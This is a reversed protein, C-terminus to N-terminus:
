KGHERWMTEAVLFDFETDIDLSEVREMLYPISGNNIFQKKELFVERRVIYIAGNISFYKPLDQTRTKLDSPVLPVMQAKERDVTFIHSPHDSAPGLSM